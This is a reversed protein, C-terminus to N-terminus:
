ELRNLYAFCVIRKIYESRHLTDAEYGHNDKGSKEGTPEVVFQKITVPGQFYNKDGFTVENSRDVVVSGIQARQIATHAIIGGNPLGNEVIQSLIIGPTAVSKLLNEDPKEPTAVGLKKIILGDSYEEDSDSDLVSSELSNISIVTSRMSLTPSSKLKDSIKINGLQDCNNHMTEIVIGSDTSSLSSSKGENYVNDQM